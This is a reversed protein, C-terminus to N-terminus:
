FRFAAGLRHIYGRPRITGFDGITARDVWRHGVEGYFAFGQDPVRIEVGAAVLVGGALGSARLQNANTSITPDDDLRVLGRWLLAQAMAYPFLVEDYAEVDGRAGLGFQDVTLVSRVEAREVDDVVLSGGRQGRQWTGVVQLREHLAVQVRAGLGLMFVEGPFLAYDPQDTYQHAIDLGITFIRDDPEDPEVPDTVEVVQPPATEDEASAEDTPAGADDAEAEADDAEPAAVDETEPAEQAGAAALTYILPIM